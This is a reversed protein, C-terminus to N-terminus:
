GQRRHITTPEQFLVFKISVMMNPTTPSTKLKPNETGGSSLETSANHYEREARSASEMKQRNVTLYAPNTQLYM